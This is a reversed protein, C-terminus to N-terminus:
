RDTFIAIEKVIILNAGFKPDLERVVGKVGVRRNLYSDLPITSGEESQLYYLVQNGKMLRHTGQQGGPHAMDSVWGRALYPDPDIPSVRPLIHQRVGEKIERNKKEVDAVSQQANVLAKDREEQEGLFRLAKEAASIEARDESSDVLGQYIARVASYDRDQPERVRIAQYLDDAKKLSTSILRAEAPNAAPIAVREGGKSKKPSGPAAPPTSPQSGEKLQALQSNVEGPALDRERSIYQKSVYAFTGTPPVVKLWDGEKGIVEVESGRALTSLVEDTSQRQPAVRLNL